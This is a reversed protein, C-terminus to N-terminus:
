TRISKRYEGKIVELGQQLYKKLNEFENDEEMFGFSFSSNNILASYDNFINGISTLVKGYGKYSSKFEQYLIKYGKVFYENSKHIFHKDRHKKLNNITPELDKLIESHKKLIIDLGEQNPFINKHNRAYDILKYVSISGKTKDLLRFLHLKSSNLHAEATSVFFLSAVEWIESDSLFSEGLKKWTRFHLQGYLCEIVLERLQKEFYKTPNM